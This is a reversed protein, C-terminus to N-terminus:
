LILNNKYYTGEVTSLTMHFCNTQRDTASNTDFTLSVDYAIPDYTLCVAYAITPEFTWPVAV